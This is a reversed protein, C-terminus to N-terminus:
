LYITKIPYREGRYDLPDLFEEDIDTIFESPVGVQRSGFITRVGAYTLIVRKKARTLAVYFLRREEEEEEQNIADGSIKKHPFLGDELGTIFVYDFELGKSAHITMLKVGNKPTDLEDQDTALASDTLFKEVGEPKQFEDYRTALTVLERINELREKDEDTGNRLANEMGSIKIIFKVIESPKQNTVSTKIKSLVNRFETIKEKTKTPLKEELGSFIKLLTVKGIGRAPANIARKFEATNAPELASKFYALVDKIEKREFFRTGLVQYSINRSLFAEELARSQFNARYLIAISNIDAGNKILDEATGAVFSAEETEDYSAYLGIKEGDGNKTFLNKPVRMKNKDIIRNAVTLITQTSRYNQELLIIKAGPYDKEFDLINKISAGRWSYICNHVVIGGAVYNHVFDIDLDYVKGEYEKREIKVIEDEIIKNNKLIPIKMTTYLNGAPQFQMRKGDTLLANRVFILDHDIKLIELAMKEAEGYDLRAIEIRWDDKKGKRPKLGLAILKEKLKINSTNISVRSLGWPKIESMRKDSFMTLRVTIRNREDNQRTTGQPQHHPFDHNLGLDNMLELARVKTDIQGYLKNISNQSLIMKTGATKFIILPLGYKTAYFIEWYHAEEKDTCVRIIWMADANEQNARVKLGVELVKKLPARVGQVIGVRYGRNRKYMLYVYFINKDMAFSAFFLHDPTTSIKKGSKTTIELIDGDYNRTKVNQINSYHTHGSGSASLIKEGVKITDIAKEGSPTILKTTPLLCQDIDGVVCINEANGTIQRAIEYQVKNTDQYEDIHIYEWTKQYRSRIAEDHKLLLAAKLLLDDFDLSKEKQLASEYHEWVKVVVKAIFDNEKIKEKYRDLTIFNGKERSIINLIKGPEFQKPDFGASELSEKIIRKSDSRDLISFNRGVGAKGANERIIHVGLAHFTSVFPREAFTLPRNLSPDTALLHMVRDRMERAAKNTFTIALIKDAPTGTKILNLIRHTITKTKGAGAGAVILLPGKTTLVAEKQEKNLHTLHDM